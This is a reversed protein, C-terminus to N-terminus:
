LRRGDRTAEPFWARMREPSEPPDWQIGVALVSYGQRMLFGNGPGVDPNDDTRRVASNFMSLATLNGRNISDALLRGGAPPNVPKLLHFQTSYEVLGQATTPALDLDCIAAHQPHGPDATFHLVGTLYEYPGVEGFAQGGAYAGRKEIDIRTVPM